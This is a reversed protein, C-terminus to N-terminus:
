AALLVAARATARWFPDVLRGELVSARFRLQRAAAPNHRDAEFVADARIRSAMRVVLRAEGDSTVPPCWSISRAHVKGALVLRKEDDQIVILRAVFGSAGDPVSTIADEEVCNEAHAIAEELCSTRTLTVTQGYAYGGHAFGGGPFEVDGLCTVELPLTDFLAAKNAPRLAEARLNREAQEAFHRAVIANLDIAEPDPKDTM